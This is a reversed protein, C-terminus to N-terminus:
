ARLSVFPVTAFSAPTAVAPNPLAGSVSTQSWGTRPVGVESHPTLSGVSTYGTASGSDTYFGIGNLQCATGVQSVVALWYRQPTLAQSITITKGGTSTSSVTGADVVLAGPAGDTSSYIGLRVVNSSTGATIVHVGIRDFTHNEVVVFSFLFMTDLTCTHNAAVGIGPNSYYYGAIYGPNSLYGNVDAATLVEGPAFTKPM